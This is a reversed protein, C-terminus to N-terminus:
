LGKDWTKITSRDLVQTKHKKNEDTKMYGIM